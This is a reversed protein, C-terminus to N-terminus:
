FSVHGPHWASRRQYELESGSGPAAYCHSFPRTEFPLLPILSSRYTQPNWASRYKMPFEAAFVMVSGPEHRSDRGIM